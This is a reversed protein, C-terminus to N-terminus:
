STSPFTSQSCYAHASYLMFPLHDEYLRVQMRWERQVGEAVTTDTQTFRATLHMLIEGVEALYASLSFAKPLTARRPVLQTSRRM